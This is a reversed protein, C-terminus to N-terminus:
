KILVIKKIDSFVQGPKNPDIAILKYFYVGSAINTGDFEATYYNATKFENVLTAIERGMLDYVKITVKGDFPLQYDIKSTPNSPNPYNQSVFFDKPGAVSVMSALNFYEFGGNYDIQKLRYQYTAKTLNKDEFFYNKPTNSTGSGKVFGETIYVNEDKKKRQIEFGSNNTETQTVWNLTVNNKLVSSNFSSLLVPLPASCITGTGTVTGNETITNACVDAALGIFLSTGADYTINSQSLLVPTFLFSYIFIYLFKKM